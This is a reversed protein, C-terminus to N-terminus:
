HIEKNVERDIENSVKEIFNFLEKFYIQKLKTEKKFIDQALGAIVNSFVNISFEYVDQSTYDEFEVNFLDRIKNTVIKGKKYRNENKDSM